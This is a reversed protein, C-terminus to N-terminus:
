DCESEDDIVLTNYYDGYPNKAPKFTLCSIKGAKYNRKLISQLEFCAPYYDFEYFVEENSLRIEVYNGEIDCDVEADYALPNEEQDINENLRISVVNGANDNVNMVKLRDYKPAVQASLQLSLGLIGTLYFFNNIM